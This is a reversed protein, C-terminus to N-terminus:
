ESNRFRFWHEHEPGDIQVSEMWIHSFVGVPFERESYEQMGQITTQALDIETLGSAILQQFSTPLDSSGEIDDRGFYLKVGSRYSNESAEITWAGTELDIALCAFGLAIDALHKFAVRDAVLKFIDRLTSHSITM